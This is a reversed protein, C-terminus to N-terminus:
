GRAHATRCEAEARELPSVAEATDGRILQLQAERLATEGRNLADTAPRVTEIGAGAIEAAFVAHRAEELCAVVGLIRRELEDRTPLPPPKPEPAVRDPPPVTPTENLKVAEAPQATEHPPTAPATTDPLASPAACGSILSGALVLWGLWWQSGMWFVRGSRM